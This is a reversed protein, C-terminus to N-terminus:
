YTDYGQPPEKPGIQVGQRGGGETPHGGEETPAESVGADRKGGGVASEEGRIVASTEMSAVTVGNLTKLRLVTVRATVTSGVTSGWGWGGGLM